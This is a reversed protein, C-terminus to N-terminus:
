LWIYKSVDDDNTWNNFVTEADDEKLERLILREAELTKIIKM